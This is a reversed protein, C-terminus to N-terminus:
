HRREANDLWDFYDELERLPMGMRIAEQALAIRRQEETMEAEPAHHHENGEPHERGIMSFM